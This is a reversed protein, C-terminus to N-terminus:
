GALVGVAVGIASSPRISCIAWSRQTTPPRATIRVDLVAIEPVGASSAIACTRPLEAGLPATKASSMVISGIAAVGVAVGEAVDSGDGVGTGDGVNAGVAIGVAM